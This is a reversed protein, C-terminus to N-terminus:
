HMLINYNEVVFLTTSNGVMGHKISSLNINNKINWLLLDNYFVSIYEGKLLVKLVVRMSEMPINVNQSLTTFGTNGFAELKALPIYINGGLNPPIFELYFRWFNTISVIRFAIGFRLISGYPINNVQGATGSTGCPMQFWPYFGTEQGSSHWVTEHTM